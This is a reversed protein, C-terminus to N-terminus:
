TSPAVRMSHTAPRTRICEYRLLNKACELAQKNYQQITQSSADTAPMPLLPQVLVADVDLGKEEFLMCFEEHILANHHAAYELPLRTADLWSYVSREDRAVRGRYSANILTSATETTINDMRFATAFNRLAEATKRRRNRTIQLLSMDPGRLICDPHVQSSAKGNDMLLHNSFGANERM